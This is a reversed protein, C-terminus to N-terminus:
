TQEVLSRIRFRGDDRFLFTELFSVSGDRGRVTLAPARFPAARKVSEMAREELAKYGNSRRVAVRALSGDRGITIDLVVISKFMEPLPESFQHPSAQAVRQAFDRKYADLTLPPLTSPAAAPPPTSTGQTAPPSQRTAGCAAVLAVSAVLATRFLTSARLDM